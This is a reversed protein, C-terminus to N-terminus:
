TKSKSGIAKTIKECDRGHKRLAELFRQKEEATWLTKPVPKLKMRIDEDLLSPDKSLKHIWNQM